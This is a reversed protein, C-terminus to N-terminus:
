GTQVRCDRTQLRQISIAIQLRSRYVSQGLLTGHSGRCPDHGHWDMGYDDRSFQLEVFDCPTMRRIVTMM